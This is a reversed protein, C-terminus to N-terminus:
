RRFLTLRDLMDGAGRLDGHHDAKGTGALARHQRSGALGPFRLAIANMARCQGALGRFSQLLRGAYRAACQCRPFVAPLSIPTPQISTVDEDDVLAAHDSAPLEGAEDVLDSPGAGLEDQDSIMFLKLRDSRARRKPRNGFGDAM